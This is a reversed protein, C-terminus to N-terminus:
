ATVELLPLYGEGKQASHYIIRHDAGIIPPTNSVDYDARLCFNTGGIEETHYDIFYWDYDYQATWSSGGNTSAAAYGNPYQNGTAGIWYVMNSTSGGVIHVVVCYETNALLQTGTTLEILYWAGWTATSLTNGNITGQALVSGTPFHNADAKYIKIYVTGPSGKRKLRLRVATLWMDSLPTRSQSWWINGYINAYASRAWDYSEQQKREIPCQNLWAIGDANLNTWNYQDLVIDALNFQGLITTENTQTAWDDEDMPEFCLGKTIDITGSIGAKETVYLGLRASTIPGIGQTHFNLWSRHLYYMALLHTNAVLKSEPRQYRSDVVLNAGNRATSWTGHRSQITRNHWTPLYNVVGPVPVRGFGKFRDFGM